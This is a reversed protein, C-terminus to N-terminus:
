RQRVFRGRHPADSSAALSGVSVRKNRGGVGVVGGVVGAGGGTERGGASASDLLNPIRPWRGNRSADIVGQGLVADSPPLIQSSSAGITHRGNGGSDGARRGGDGVAGATEARHRQQQQQQRHQHQQHQQHQRLREHASAPVRHPPMKFGGRWIVSPKNIHMPNNSSIKEMRSGLTGGQFQSAFRSSSQDEAVTMPRNCSLCMSRGVAGQGADPDPLMGAETLEKVVRDLLPKVKISGAAAQAQQLKRISGEMSASMDRFAVQLAGMAEADRAATASSGRAKATVTADLRQMAHKLAEVDTQDAKGEVVMSVSNAVQGLGVLESGLTRLGAEAAALEEATRTVVAGQEEHESKLGDLRTALDATYASVTASVRRMAGRAEAAEREERARRAEERARRDVREELASMEAALRAQTEENAVRSAADAAAAAAEEVGLGAGGAGDEAVTAELHAVRETVGGLDRRLTPIEDGLVGALIEEIRSDDAPAIVLPPPPHGSSLARAKVSRVNGELLDMREGLTALGEELKNGMALLSLEVSDQLNQLDAGTVEAAVSTVVDGSGRSPLRGGDSCRRYIRSEIEDMWRWLQAVEGDADGGGTGGSSRRWGAWGGGGRGGGGEDGPAAWAETPLAGAARRQGVGDSMGSAPTGGEEPVGVDIDDNDSTAPQDNRETEADDASGAPGSGTIGGSSPTDEAYTELWALRARATLILEEEDAAQGDGGSGRGGRVMDERAGAWCDEEQAAESEGESGGETGAAMGEAIITNRLVITQRMLRDLLKRKREAAAAKAGEADALLKRELAAVRSEIQDEREGITGVQSQLTDVKPCLAMGGGLMLVTKAVTKMKPSKRATAPAAQKEERGQGGERDGGEDDFGVDEVATSTAAAAAVAPAPAPAPAPAQEDPESPTNVETPADEESSKGIDMDLSKRAATSGGWVAGELLDLRESDGASMGSGGPQQEVARLRSDIDDFRAKANGPGSKELADIQRRLDGVEQAKTERLDLVIQRLLAIQSHMVQVTDTLLQVDISCVVLGKEGGLKIEPWEDELRSAIAVHHVPSPADGCGQHDATSAAERGTQEEGEFAAKSEEEDEESTM